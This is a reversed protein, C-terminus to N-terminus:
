FQELLRHLYDREPESRQRDGARRRLEDLIRRARQVESQGPIRTTGDDGIGHGPLPRGMPDRPLMGIGAMKGLQEIGDQLRRVAQGQAEAASGWAGKGLEGVAGGMASEADGLQGPAEDGLKGALGRLDQRLREQAAAAAKGDGSPRAGEAHRFSQDLLQQQRRVMDDLEAAAKAAPGDPSPAPHLDAMLRSLDGLMQRLADRAGSGAMARMNELMRALDDVGIVQGDGALSQPEHGMREAMAAVARQIAAQLQEVLRQLEDAPANDALAKELAKAAEDVARRAIALDGEEIRLAAVWMLDQAEALDFADNELVHRALRLALFTRVDDGFQRPDDSAFDLVDIASRANTRDETIARREDAVAHAVPNAFDREPLTVAVPQGGAVQGATDEAMPRVSVPLGAWPHATLDIWSSIDANRPRNAALALDVKLPEGDPADIRHIELWAKALGYDDSATAQVHLRGREGIAAPQSFEISPLADVVVQIPWAAVTGFAQRVELRSGSEIRAEIRQNGDALRQFATRRGDIALDAGGWGGSLAALVTSGAAIAVPRGNAPPHLLAPALGTYAPPTVWVELGAAMGPLGIAPTLARALRAPADRWGTAAAVALLLLVGVRLGWPDRAAMDPSPMGVRLRGAQAAARRRHTAWLAQAFSDAPDAALVDGLAALPRHDFGSDRELRRAAETDSPWAMRKLGRRALLGAATAFAALAGAHLWGPLLPLLDFLAAALLLGAVMASPLLAPWLREWALVWRALRLRGTFPPLAVDDPPQTTM